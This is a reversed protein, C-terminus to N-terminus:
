NPLFIRLRGTGRDLVYGRLWNRRSRTLTVIKGSGVAHISEPNALCLELWKEDGTTASQLISQTKEALQVSGRPLDSIAQLRSFNKVIKFDM